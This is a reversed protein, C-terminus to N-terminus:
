EVCHSQINLSINEKTLPFLTVVQRLKFAIKKTLLLSINLFFYYYFFLVTSLFLHFSTFPQRRLEPFQNTYNM